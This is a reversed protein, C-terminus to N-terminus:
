AGKGKTKPKTSTAKALGLAKLTTPSYPEGFLNDGRNTIERNNTVDAAALNGVTLKGPVYTENGAECLNAQGPATTNPYPNFHLRNNDVIQTSGKAAKEISPGNAPVASPYGENNVGTPALVASARALTGM